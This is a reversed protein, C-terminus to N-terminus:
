DSQLRLASVTAMPLGSANNGTYDQASSEVRTYGHCSSFWSMPAHLLLFASVLFVFGILWFLFWLEEWRALHGYVHNNREATESRQNTPIVLCVVTSATLVLSAARMTGSFAHFLSSEPERQRFPFAYAQLWLIWLLSASLLVAATARFSLDCGIPCAGGTEWVLSYVVIATIAICAVGTMALSVLRVTTTTVSAPLMRWGIPVSTESTLLAGTVAAVVLLQYLGRAAFDFTKNGGMFPETSMLVVLAVACLPSLYTLASASRAGRLETQTPACENSIDDNNNSRPRYRANERAIELCLGAIAGIGLLGSLGIAFGCFVQYEVAFSVM